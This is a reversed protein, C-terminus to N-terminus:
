SALKVNNKNDRKAEYLAKDARNVLGHINDGMRLEAVGISVTIHGVTLFQQNQIKLRIKEALIEANKLETEPMLIAFEEGGWRAIIDSRRIADRALLALSQLLVDGANHGYTDNVNKFDDVDLILFSLKKQYRLAQAIEYEMLYSLSRRNNIGTLFDFEANKLLLKEHSSRIREYFYALAGAFIFSSLAQVFADLPVRPSIYLVPHLFYGLVFVLLSILTWYLGQKYNTLFFYIMPFIPLWVLSFVIDMQTLAATSFIAFSIFASAPIMWLALDRKYILYIMAFSVLGAMLEVASVVVYGAQYDVLSASLCALTALSYFYKYFLAKQSPVKVMNAAQQTRSM